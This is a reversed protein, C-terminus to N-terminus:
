RGRGSSGYDSTWGENSAWRELSAPSQQQQQNIGGGGMGAGVGGGSMGGGGSVYGGGGDIDDDYYEGGSSADFSSRGSVVEGPGTPDDTGPGLSDWPLNALAPYQALLAQPLGYVASTGGGGGANNMNMSDMTMGGHHMNGGEPQSMLQQPGGGNSNNGGFHEGGGNGTRGHQIAEEDLLPKICIRGAESRFHRGLADARAFRRGCGWSNGSKLEGKCVFKKEGSHLGEHRKRDHQRAFAKGCVTCVFPREDTHTRLHSRLNYARTFKKPCLTCQFTAPHKQVRKSETAGGGPRQPDALDLIYDRNPISSTSSRRSSKPSSNLSSTPLMAAQPSLSRRSDLPFPARPSPSRLPLPSGGIYPDSQARIRGKKSREPPSLANCDDLSRPPELNQQKAPAAFEINIEPTAMQAAYGGLEGSGNNLQVSPIRESKVQPYMESSMPGGFQNTGPDTSLMFGGVGGQSPDLNSHPSLRPSIHPSPVPSFGQNAGNDSITFHEIGLGEQFLADPQSRLMPSRQADMNDFTDSTPLFPSHAVSSVESHESPTRRHTQFAPGQLATWDAFPQGQPFAASAPNLSHRPSHQASHVGFQHELPSHHQSHPSPERDMRRGDSSGVSGGFPSSMHTMLEAPNVSQNPAQTDTQLSPDGLLAEFSQHDQSLDPLGAGGHAFGYEESLGQMSQQSVMQATMYPSGMAHTSRPSISDHNPSLQGQPSSPSIQSHHFNNPNITGPQTLQQMPQQTTSLAFPVPGSAHRGLGTPGMGTQLPYSAAHMMQQRQPGSPSRGRTHNEM